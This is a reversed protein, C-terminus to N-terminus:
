AELQYENSQTRVPEGSILVAWQKEFTDDTYRSRLLRMACERTVWKPENLYTIPREDTAYAETPQVVFGQVRVDHTESPEDSVGNEAICKEWPTLYADTPATQMVTMM